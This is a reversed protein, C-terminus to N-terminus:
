ENEQYLRYLLLFCLVAPIEQYGDVVDITGAISQYDNSGLVFGFSVPSVIQIRCVCYGNTVIDYQEFSEPDVQNKRKVKHFELIEEKGAFHLCFKPARFEFFGPSDQTMEGILQDHEQFLKISTINSFLTSHREIYLSRYRDPYVAIKKYGAYFIAALNVPDFLDFRSVYYLIVGGTACVFM